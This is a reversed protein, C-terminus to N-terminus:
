KITQSVAASSSVLTSAKDSMEHDHPAAGQHAPEEDRPFCCLWLSVSRSSPRASVCVGGGGLTRPGWATGSYVRIPARAFPGRVTRPPPVAHQSIVGGPRLLISTIISATADVNRAAARASWVEGPSIGIIAVYM